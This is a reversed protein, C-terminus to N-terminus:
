RNDNKYIYKRLIQNLEQSNANGPPLSDKLEEANSICQNIFNIINEEGSHLYDENKHAKLSILDSINEKIRPDIDLNSIAKPFEIPPIEMREIIWKCITATRLAYFLKKLKYEKLGIVDDLCKKAMSLYHHITAIKSYSNSAAKTIDSLFEEDVSYLIPSQIRELLPPNSKKLLGLSKRLEWGSIDILNDELMMEITDKLSNISLYWDLEHVYIIRVDYDSDPSPFGWARSGTECALLVKINRNQEIDQVYKLINKEMRMM